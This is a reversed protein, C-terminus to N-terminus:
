HHPNHLEVVAIFVFHFSADAIDLEASVSLYLEQEDVQL